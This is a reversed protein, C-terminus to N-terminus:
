EDKLMERCKDFFANTAKAIEDMAPMTDRKGDFADKLGAKFAKMMVDKAIDEPIGGNLLAETLGSAAASFDCLVDPGKGHITVNGDKSLIM